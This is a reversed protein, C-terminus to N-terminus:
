KTTLDFVRWQQGKKYVLPAVNERKDIGKRGGEAIDERSRKSILSNYQTIDHSASRKISVDYHIRTKKQSQHSTSNVLFTQAGVDYFPM